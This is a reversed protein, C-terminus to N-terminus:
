SKPLIRPPDKPIKWSKQSKPPIRWSRSPIIWPIEGKTTKAHSEGPNKSIRIPNKLIIFPNQRSRKPNKPNWPIRTSKKSLNKVKKSNQHSKEPIKWSEKPNEHSEKPNRCSEEVDGVKPLGWRPDEPIRTFICSEEPNKLVGLVIRVPDKLFFYYYVIWVLLDKSWGTATRIGWVFFGISEIPADITGCREAWKCLGMFNLDIWGVWGVVRGGWVWRQNYNRYILSSGIWTSASHQNATSPGLRICHILRLHSVPLSNKNNNNNNNNNNKNHRRDIYSILSM